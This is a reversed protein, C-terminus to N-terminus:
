VFAVRSHFTQTYDDPGPTCKQILFTGLQHTKETEFLADADSDYAGIVEEGVIVIYKNNYKKVLEDQNDLYYKFEKELM